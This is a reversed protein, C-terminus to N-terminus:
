YFGPDKSGTDDNDTVMLWLLFVNNLGPILQFANRFIGMSLQTIQLLNALVKSEQIM